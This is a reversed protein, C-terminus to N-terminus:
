KLLVCPLDPRVATLATMDSLILPCLAGQDPLCTRVLAALADLSLAADQQLHNLIKRDTEDINIDMTPFIDVFKAFDCDFIPDTKRRQPTSWLFCTYTGWAGFTGARKQPGDAIPLRFM